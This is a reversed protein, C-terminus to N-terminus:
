FYCHADRIINMGAGMRCHLLFAEALGRVFYVNAACLCSM